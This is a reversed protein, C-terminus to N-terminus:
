KKMKRYIRYILLVPAFLLKGIFSSFIRLLIEEDSSLLNRNCDQSVSKKKLHWEPLRHFYVMNKTSFALPQSSVHKKESLSIDLGSVNEVVNCEHPVMKRGFLLVPNQSDRSTLVYERKINQLPKVGYLDVEFSYAALTKSMKQLCEPYIECHADYRALSNDYDPLNLSVNHYRIPVQFRDYEKHNVGPDGFNTSYSSRPYVFTLDFELMYKIFHKKWSSVPWNIINEPLKYNLNRYFNTNRNYWNEFKQWQKSTWCQGWSSAIQLFFVDYGDDIPTFAFQSTENYRHSYLSVGAIREDDMYKSVTQQCYDYFVPSLYIDDEVLIIADHQQSLGGCKLIHDKLGLNAKHNIIKKTGHEWEFDEAIRVIEAPGGGDISIYLMVQQKYEARALSSLIRDLPMPRNYAAVVIAIDMFFYFQEKEPFHTCLLL